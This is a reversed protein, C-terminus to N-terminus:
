KRIKEIVNAFRIVYKSKRDKYIKKELLRGRCSKMSTFRIFISKKFRVIIEFGKPSSLIM